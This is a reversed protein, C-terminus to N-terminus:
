SPPFPNGAGSLAVMLAGGKSNAGLGTLVYNYEGPPVEGPQGIRSGIGAGSSGPMGVFLGGGGGPMGVTASLACTSDQRPTICTVAHNAGVMETTNWSWEFVVAQPDTLVFPAVEQGGPQVWRLHGSTAVDHPQSAAVRSPVWDELTRIFASSPGDGILMVRYKGAPIVEPWNPVLGVPYPEGLDSDLGRITLFGAVPELGPLRQLYWGAFDGKTAGAVYRRM